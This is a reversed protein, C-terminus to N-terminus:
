QGDGADSGIQESASDLALLRRGAEVGALTHSFESIHSHGNPLHLEAVGRYPGLLELSDVFGASSQIVAPRLAAPVSTFEASIHEPIPIDIIILPIGREVCVAHLRQLLAAALEVEYGSQVNRTPVAFDVTQQSVQDALRAKFFSWTSNFLLSYFYSNESLWKIGPVAYIINQIRVGPIHVYRDPVLVGEDNLRFLGAKLNDELDNAFFGLVIADPQYRLGENELFALAEATSYGSVGANIVQATKGHAILYRELVAAYTHDQRVEYGQTHSDGLALVRYLGAPKEYDIDDRNRFGRNNTIFTWSGDVSTHRFEADSRIRRLTYDGYTADTHYRPFLVIGDGYFARVVGEGLLLMLLLVVTFVALGTLRNGM